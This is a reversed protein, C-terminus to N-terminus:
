KADRENHYTFVLTNAITYIKFFQWYVKLIDYLCPFLIYMKLGSDYILFLYSVHNFRFCFVRTIARMVQVMISTYLMQLFVKFQKWVLFNNFNNYNNPEYSSIEIYVIRFCMENVEKEFCNLYVIKLSRIWLWNEIRFLVDSPYDKELYLFGVPITRHMIFWLYWLKKEINTILGQIGTTLHKNEGVYVDVRFYPLFCCKDVQYTLIFEHCKGKTCEMSKIPRVDILIVLPSRVNVYIHQKGEVAPCKLVVIGFVGIQFVLM